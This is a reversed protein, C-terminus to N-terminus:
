DTDPRQAYVLVYATLPWAHVAPARIEADDCNVWGGDARRVTATYHGKTHTGLHHCIAVLDYTRSAVVLGTCPFTVAVDSRTGDPAFRNLHLLLVAPVSKFQTLTTACVLLKCTRCRWADEAELTHTQTAVRLCKQVGVTRKGTTVPVVMVFFPELSESRGPCAPCAVTNTLVGQFAETFWSPGRPLTEHFRNLVYTFIESADHQRSRDAFCPDSALYSVFGKPTVTASVGAELEVLLKSFEALLDSNPVQASQEHTLSHTRAAWLCQIVSNVACTNGLNTLGVRGLRNRRVRADALNAPGIRPPSIRHPVYLQM